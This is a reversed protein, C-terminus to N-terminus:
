GRALNELERKITSHIVNVLPQTEISIAMGIVKEFEALQGPEIFFPPFGDKNLFANALVMAVTLNGSEFPWIDMIRTFVLAAKEIPHIDAMSEASMWTFFNDLSRDIFQPEPCDQGRYRAAIVSQRLSGTGGFLKSHALLLGEKGPEKLAERADGVGTAREMLAIVRDAKEWVGAVDVNKYRLLDAFQMGSRLIINDDSM